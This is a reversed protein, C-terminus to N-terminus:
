RVRRRRHPYLLQLLTKDKMAIMKRALGESSQVEMGEVDRQNWLSAGVRMAAMWINTKQKIDDANEWGPLYVIEINRFGKSLTYGTLKIIGKKTDNVVYGTTGYGTYAPIVEDNVKLSTFSSIPYGRLYLIQGTDGDQYETIDGGPKIIYELGLIQKCVLEAAHLYLNLLTDYDDGTIELKVKLNAVSTYELTM